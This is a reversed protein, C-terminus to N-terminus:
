SINLLGAATALPTYINPIAVSNKKPNFIIVTKITAVQM